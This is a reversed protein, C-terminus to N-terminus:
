FYRDGWERWVILNMLCDLRSGDVLRVGRRIVETV